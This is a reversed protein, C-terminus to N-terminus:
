LYMLMNVTYVQQLFYGAFNYMQYVLSHYMYDALNSCIIKYKICKLQASSASFDM